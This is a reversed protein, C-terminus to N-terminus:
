TALKTVPEGWFQRINFVQGNMFQITIGNNYVYFMDATNNYYSYLM